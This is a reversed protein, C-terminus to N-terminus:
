SGVMEKDTGSGNPRKIEGDREIKKGGSGERKGRMIKRVEMKWLEEIEHLVSM